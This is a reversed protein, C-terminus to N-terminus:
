VIIYMIYCHNQPSHTVNKKNKQPFSFLRLIPIGVASTGIGPVNGPYM